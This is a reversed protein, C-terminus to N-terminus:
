IPRTNCVRSNTSTRRLERQRASRDSDYIHAGYAPVFGFLNM